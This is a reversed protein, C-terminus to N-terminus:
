PIAQDHILKVEPIAHVTELWTKVKPFPTLDYDIQYLTALECALSIDAITLLDGFMFKTNNAFWYKEIFGLSKGILDFSEKILSETAPKGTLASM